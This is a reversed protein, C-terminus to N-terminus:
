NLAQASYFVATAIALVGLTSSRVREPLFPQLAAGLHGGLLGGVGAAIGVTWHPVVSLDPHTLALVM